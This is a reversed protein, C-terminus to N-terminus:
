NQSQPQQYDMFADNEEYDTKILSSGEEEDDQAFLELERQLQEATSEKGTEAATGPNNRRQSRSQAGAGSPATLETMPFDARRSGEQAYSSQNEEASISAMAAGKARRSKPGTKEGFTSLELM